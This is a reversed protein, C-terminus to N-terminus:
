GNTMDGCEYVAFWTTGWDQQVQLSFDWPHEPYFGNGPLAKIYYGKSFQEEVYQMLTPINDFILHITSNELLYLTKPQDYEGLAEWLSNNARKM